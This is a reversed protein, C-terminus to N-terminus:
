ILEDIAKKAEELTKFSAIHTGDKSVYFMGDFPNKNILYRKYAEDKAAHRHWLMTILEAIDSLLGDRVHSRADLVRRRPGDSRRSPSKMHIHIAM